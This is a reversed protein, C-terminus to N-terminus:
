KRNGMTPNEPFDLVRTKLTSHFVPDKEIKYWLSKKPVNHSPFSEAAMKQDIQIRQWQEWTMPQNTNAYYEQYEKPTKRLDKLKM